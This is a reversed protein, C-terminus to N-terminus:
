EQEQEAEDKLIYKKLEKVPVAYTSNRYTFTLIGKTINATIDGKKKSVKAEESGSVDKGTEAPKSAKVDIVKKDPNNFASTLKELQNKGIKSFDTDAYVEMFKALDKVTSLLYANSYTINTMDYGYKGLKNVVCDVAGTYKSLNSEKDDMALALAKKTKILPEDKFLEEAVINNMAIVYEWMSRNAGVSANLAKEINEKLAPNSIQNILDPNNVLLATTNNM